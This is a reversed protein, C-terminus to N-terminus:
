MQSFQQDPLVGSALVKCKMDTSAEKKTLCDALQQESPIWKVLVEGLESMERLRAIDVRLGPDSIIKKSVM